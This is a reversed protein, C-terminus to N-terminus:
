SGVGCGGVWVRGVQADAAARLDLVHALREVLHRYLAPNDSPSPTGAYYVLPADCPLGDEIDIPAEVAPRPAPHITTAAHPPCRHSAPWTDTWAPPHARPASPLRPLAGAAAAAAAARVQRPPSAAPCPSPARASTWTLLPPPGGQGCRTTSCSRACAARAWTQTHTHTPHPTPPPPPPPPPRPPSPPPPHDSSPLSLCRLLPRGFPLRLLGAGGVWGRVRPDWWLPAPPGRGQHAAGEQRRADLTDHINLYHAM